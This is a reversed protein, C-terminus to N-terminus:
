STGAGRIGAVVQEVMAGCHLLLQQSLEERILTRIDDGGSDPMATSSSAYAPPDISHTSQPRWIWTQIPLARQIAIRWRGTMPRRSSFPIPCTVSSPSLYVRDDPGGVYNPLRVRGTYVRPRYFYLTCRVLHVGGVVDKM